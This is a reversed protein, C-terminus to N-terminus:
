TDAIHADVYAKDDEPAPSWATAKNGFEWKFKGTSAGANTSNPAWPMSIRIYIATAPINYTTTFNPCDVNTYLIPTFTGLYNKNADYYEPSDNNGTPSSTPNFQTVTLYKAGNVLIYDTHWCTGSTAAVGKDLYGYQLKTIAWLNVGGIQVDDI